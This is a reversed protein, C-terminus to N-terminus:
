GALQGHYTTSRCSSTKERQFSHAVRAPSLHVLSRASIVLALGRFIEGSQDLYERLRLFARGERSM